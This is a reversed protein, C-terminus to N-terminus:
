PTLVALEQWSSVLTQGSCSQGTVSYGPFCGDRPSLQVVVPLLSEAGDKCSVLVRLAHFKLTLVTLSQDIGEQQAPNMDMRADSVEAEWTKRNYGGRAAKDM